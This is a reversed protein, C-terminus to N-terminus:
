VDLGQQRYKNVLHQEYEESSSNPSVELQDVKTFWKEWKAKLTEQSSTNQNQNHQEKLLSDLLQNAKELSPESLQQLKAIAAERSNMM